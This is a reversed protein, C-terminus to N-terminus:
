RVYENMFAASREMSKLPSNQPWNRHSELVIARVGEQLALSVLKPLPLNGDGLEMSDSTLLPTMPAKKLKTGRDNIHYLKMRGKLKELFAFPDAGAEVAWYPDPEFFLSSADSEELLLDLVRRSGDVKQFEVNHNHYSLTIGAKKLEEGTKSLRHALNVVEKCDLYNFRYMGTIILQDTQFAEADAIVADQERELSGLDTHLGTVQLKAESILDKWPLKGGKGVPMGAMKTLFRVIFPSPHIMFRNLEIGDYGARKVSRLTTRAEQETGTVTGLMIQQISKVAVEKGEKGHVDSGYPIGRNKASRYKEKQRDVLVPIKMGTKSEEPFNRCRDPQLATKM